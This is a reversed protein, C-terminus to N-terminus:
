TRFPRSFGIAAGGNETIEEAAGDLRGPHGLLIRRHAVTVAVEDVATSMRVRGTRHGLAQWFACGAVDDLLAKLSGTFPPRRVAGLRHRCQAKHAGVASPRPM